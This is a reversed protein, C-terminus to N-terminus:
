SCAALLLPTFAFRVSADASSGPIHHNLLFLESIRDRRPSALTTAKASAHRVRCTGAASGDRRPGYDPGKNSFDDHLPLGSSRGRSPCSLSPLLSLLALRRMLDPPVSAAPAHSPQRGGSLCVVARCQSQRCRDDNQMHVAHVASRIGHVRHCRVQRTTLVAVARGDGSPRASELGEMDRGGADDAAMSEMMTGDARARKAGDRGQAIEPCRSPTASPQCCFWSSVSSNGYLRRHLQCRSRKCAGTNVLVVRDRETPEAPGSRAAIRLPTTYRIRVSDPAPLLLPKSLPEFASCACSGQPFPSCVVLRYPQLRQSSRPLQRGGPLLDDRMCDGMPGETRPTCGRRGSGEGDSRRAHMWWGVSGPHLSAFVIYGEPGEAPGRDQLEGCVHPTRQSGAGAGLADQKGCVLAGCPGSFM